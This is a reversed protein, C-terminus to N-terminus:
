HPPAPPTLQSTRRTVVAIDHSQPDTFDRLQRLIIPDRLCNNDRWAYHELNRKTM